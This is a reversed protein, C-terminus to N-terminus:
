IPNSKKGNQKFYIDRCIRKLHNLPWLKNLLDILTMNNFENAEFYDNLLNFLFNQFNKAMNRYKKFNSFLKLCFESFIIKKVYNEGINSLLGQGNSLM